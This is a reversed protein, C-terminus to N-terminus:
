DADGQVYKLGNSERIAILSYGLQRLLEPHRLRGDEPMQLGQEITAVDGLRSAGTAVAEPDLRVQEAAHCQRVDIQQRRGFVDHSLQAVLRSLRNNERGDLRFGDADDSGDLAL